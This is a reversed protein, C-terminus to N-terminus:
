YNFMKKFNSVITVQLDQIMQIIRILAILIKLHILMYQVRPLEKKGMVNFAPRLHLSHFFLLTRKFM